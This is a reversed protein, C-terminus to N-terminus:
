FLNCRPPFCSIYSMEPVIKDSIQLMFPVCTYQSPFAHKEVGGGDRVLLRLCFEPGRIEPLFIESEM